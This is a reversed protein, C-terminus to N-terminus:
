DTATSDVRDTGSEGGTGYTKLMRVNFDQRSYNLDIRAQETRDLDERLMDGRIALKLIIWALRGGVAIEAGQWLITITERRPDIRLEHRGRAKPPPAPSRSSRGEVGSATGGGAGGGAGSGTVGNPGDTRGGAGGGVGGHTMAVASSAGTGSGTMTMAM